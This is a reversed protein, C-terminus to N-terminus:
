AKRSVIIFKSLVFTIPISIFTVIIPVIQSSVGLKEVFLFVFLLNIFYQVLYVIPFKLFKIFSVSEKFVFKTSLYYSFFIGIIYSITYSTKYEIFLLLVLYLAYTVATNLIGSIVFRFFPKNIFKM